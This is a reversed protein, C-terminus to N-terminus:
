FGKGGSFENILYCSLVPSFTVPKLAQWPVLSHAPSATGQQATLFVCCYNLSCVNAHKGEGQVTWSREWQRTQTGPMSCGAAGLVLKMSPLPFDLHTVTPKGRRPQPPPCRTRVQASGAPLLVAGLGRASSAPQVASPKARPLQEAAGASKRRRPYPVDYLVM